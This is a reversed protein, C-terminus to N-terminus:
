FVRSPQSRKQSNCNYDRMDVRSAGGTTIAYNFLRRGTEPPGIFIRAKKSGTATAENQATRGIAGAWASVDAETARVPCTVEASSPGISPTRTPAFFVPEVM